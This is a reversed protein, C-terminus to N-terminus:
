QIRELAKVVIEDGDSVSGSSSSSLVLGSIRDRIGIERTNASPLFGGAATVYYLADKGAVFPQLGPSKVLGTVRVFGLKHPVLISDAPKLVTGSAVDSGIPAVLIPYREDSKRGWEDPETRRFITVRSGNAAATLGGAQQLLQGFTLGDQYEYKGPTIVEGFLAIRKNATLESLEPVQIVDGAKISLDGDRHGLVRIGKIDATGKAGGALALLSSVDDGVRLEVERPSNVEGIVQVREDNKQPVVIRNGAYLFLDAAEYGAFQSSDLDVTLARPGGLLQIFRTSGSSKVNGARRVLDSVRESTYARYVGPSQVEGTVTVSIALPVSVSIDLEKANFQRNLPEYLIKRAEALTKDTLDFSGISSHVVRGEPSVRLTLPPLNTKIFTVVLEVGPRILFIDPNVPRDYNPPILRFNTTDVEGM